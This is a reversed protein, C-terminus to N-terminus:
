VLTASLNLVTERERGTVGTQELGPCLFLQETQKGGMPGAKKLASSIGSLSTTKPVKHKHSLGQGAEFAWELAKGAFVFDFVRELGLLM